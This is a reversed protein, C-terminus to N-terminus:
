QVSPFFTFSSVQFLFRQRNTKKTAASLSLSFSLSLQSMKGTKLVFDQSIRM